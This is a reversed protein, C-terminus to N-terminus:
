EPNGALLASLSHVDALDDLGLVADRIQTARAASVATTANEFYKAEIEANTLPRDPNGRNVEERHGLVRGDKLTVIVEGSYYKPFPADAYEECTVKSALMLATEDGLAEQTLDALGFRGNLLGSAVAWPVSFQADYSNQPTQKTEIPECVTKHVGAPVFARISDIDGPKLGHEARLAAAADACGHTFHCAPIPKVAVNDIEWVKGLGATALDIDIGALQEKDLYLPFLGFRGEYVANPGTFGARAMAAATIGGVGAWGPHMRKTWAGDQLFEMSGSAMSLAIGQAMALQGANLGTLKGAVMACAFVGVMGTPHFGVQHFGGKAVSGLRTSVEMGAIFATLMDRGSLHRDAAMGMAAPFAASTAHIVGAVHTDDYDLGHVLLANLMVADRLPLRAGFGIVQGDGSGFGSLASLTRHAFDYQTSALAIGVADLILHIARTRINAPIDDAGLGTVFDALQPAILATQADLDKADKTM